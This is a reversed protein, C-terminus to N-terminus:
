SPDVPAGVRILGANLTGECDADIFGRALWRSRFRRGDWSVPQERCPRYLDRGEVLERARDVHALWRARMRHRWHASSYPWGRPTHAARTLNRTWACNGPRVMAQDQTLRGSVCPSHRELWRIRQAQTEGRGEVVQWILALDPYSDLGENFSVKAVLEVLREDDARTVSCFLFVFLSLGWFWLQNSKM